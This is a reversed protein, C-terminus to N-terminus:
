AENTYARLLGDNTFSDILIEIWLPIDQAMAPANFMYIHDLATM